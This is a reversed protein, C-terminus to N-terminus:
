TLHQIIIVGPNGYVTFSGTNYKIGQLNDKVNGSILINDFMDTTRSTRFSLYPILESQDWTGTFLETPNSPDYFYGGQSVFLNKYAGETPEKINFDGLVIFNESTSSPANEAIYNLLYSIQAARKTADGGSGDSILHVAYIVITEGGNQTITFRNIDRDQTTQTIDLYSPIITNDFTGDIFKSTKYYLCNSNLSISSNNAIFTGKSYITSSSNLVNILFDDTKTNKIEIAVIIDPDIASIVNHLYTLRDSWSSADKTNYTMIKITSQSYVSGQFLVLLVLTTYRLKSM